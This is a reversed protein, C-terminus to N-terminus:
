HHDVTAIIPLAGKQDRFAGGLSILLPSDIRDALLNSCGSRFVEIEGHSLNIALEEFWGWYREGARFYQGEDRGFGQSGEVALLWCVAALALAATILRDIRRADLRPLGPKM